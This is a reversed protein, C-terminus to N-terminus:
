SQKARAVWCTKRRAQLRKNSTAQQKHLCTQVSRRCLAHRRKPRAARCMMLQAAAYVSNWEVMLVGQSPAEDAAPRDAGVDLPSRCKQNPM